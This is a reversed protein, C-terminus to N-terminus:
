YGRNPNVARVPEGRFLQLLVRMLDATRLRETDDGTGATHPSLVVTDLEHFPFRSPYTLAQSDSLPYQYWVDIGAAGVIGDKCAVFLAEEDIIAGRGVNVVLRPPRMMALEPAAILGSTEATGPAAVVLAHSQSLAEHLRDVGWVEPENPDPTRRIGIVDMGLTRLTAGIRRGIEGFGLITATKGSLLVGRNGGMRGNWEGQRLAADGSAIGRAAAILLGVAMESTATSNFHLSYLSVDARFRIFDAVGKPIGAFPVIMTELRPLNSDHDPAYGSVLITTELPAVDGRSLTAYPALENAMLQLADGEFLSLGLLPTFANHLHVHAM